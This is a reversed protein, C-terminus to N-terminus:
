CTKQSARDDTEFLIVQRGCQKLWAHAAAAREKDMWAFPEDLLIPLQGRGFLEGGAMRLAFRAAAAVSSSVQSLYLLRDPTNILIEQKEDISLARYRDETLLSFIRSASRMFDRGADELLEGAAERIRLMALDVAQIEVDYARLQDRSAYLQNLTDEIQRRQAALRQLDAGPVGGSMNKVPVDGSQVPETRERTMGKRKQAAARQKKDYLVALVIMAGGLLFVSLMALFLQMKGSEAVFACVASLIGAAVALVLVLAFAPRNQEEEDRRGHLKPLDEDPQAAGQDYFSGDQGSQGFQGSQARAMEEDLWSRQLNQGAIKTDLAEQKEKKESEIRRRKEKLLQLAQEVDTGPIGNEGNGALYEQLQGSLVQADLEGSQPLWVTNTFAPETMGGLMLRLAEEPDKMERGASMDIVRVSAADSRFNREIRYQRGRHEVVMSGAYWGPNDWPERLRYEDPRRGSGRRGTGYLMARIFAHITSKGSENGGYIVNMGSHFQMRHNEFKGFHSINLERIIM